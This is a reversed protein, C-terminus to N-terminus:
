SGAKGPSRQRGADRSARRRRSAEWVLAADQGWTRNCPHCSFFQATLEGDRSDTSPGAPMGLRNPLVAVPKPKVIVWGVWAKEARLGRAAPESGPTSSSWAAVSDRPLTQQGPRWGRGAERESNQRARRHDTWRYRSWRGLPLFVLTGNLGNKALCQKSHWVSLFRPSTRRSRNGSSFAKAFPMGVMSFARSMSRLCM